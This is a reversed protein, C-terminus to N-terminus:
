AFCLLGGVFCGADVCLALCLCFSEVCAFGALLGVAGLMLLRWFSDFSLAQWHGHSKLNKQRFVLAKGHSNLKAPTKRMVVGVRGAVPKTRM